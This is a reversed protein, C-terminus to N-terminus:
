ALDRDVEGAAHRNLVEAVAEGDRLSGGTLKEAIYGPHWNGYRFDFKYSTGWNIIAVAVAFGDRSIGEAGGPLPTLVLDYRGATAPSDYVHHVPLGSRLQDLTTDTTM